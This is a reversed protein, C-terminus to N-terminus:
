PMIIAHDHSPKPMIIPHSQCAEQHESFGSRTKQIKRVISGKIIEIDGMASVGVEAIFSRDSFTEQKDSGHVVKRVITGKIIETQGTSSVGITRKGSQDGFAESTDSGVVVVPLVSMLCAVFLVCLKHSM